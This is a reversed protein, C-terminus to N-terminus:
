QFFELILTKNEPMLRQLLLREDLTENSFVRLIMSLRSPLFASFFIKFVEMIEYSDTSTKTKFM